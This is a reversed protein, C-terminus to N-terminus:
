LNERLDRVWRAAARVAPVLRVGYGGKGGDGRTWIYICAILIMQGAPHIKQQQSSGQFSSKLAENKASWKVKEKKKM